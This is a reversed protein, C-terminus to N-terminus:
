RRTLRIPGPAMGMVLMIICAPRLHNGPRARNRQSAARRCRRQDAAARRQKARRVAKPKRRSSAAKGHADGSAIGFRPCTGALWLARRRRRNAAARRRKARRVAKPKRRCSAAKGQAGGRAIGFRPCTRALWFARRRRRNAAARRRKAGRPAAHSELAPVRGRLGFRPCTGATWFHAGIGHVADAGMATIRRAAHDPLRPSARSFPRWGNM